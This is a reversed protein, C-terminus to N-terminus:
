LQDMLNRKSLFCAINLIHQIPCRFFLMLVIVEELSGLLHFEFLKGYYTIPTIIQLLKSSVLLRDYVVGGICTLSSAMGFALLEWQFDFVPFTGTFFVFWDIDGPSNESLQTYDRLQLCEFRKVYIKIPNSKYSNSALCSPVHMFM